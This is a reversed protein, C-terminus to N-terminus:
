KNSIKRELTSLIKYSANCIGILEVLVPSLMMFAGAASTCHCKGLLVEIDQNEFGTEIYQHILLVSGLAYLNNLM